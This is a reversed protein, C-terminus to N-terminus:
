NWIHYENLKCTIIFGNRKFFELANSNKAETNAIVFHTGEAAAKSFLNLLLDSTIGRGSFSPASSILSIFGIKYSSLPSIDTRYLIFASVKGEQETYLLRCGQAKAENIVWSRYMESIKKKEFHPDDTFRNSSFASGAIELVQDLIEKENTYEKVELTSHHEKDKHTISRHQSFKSSTPVRGQALSTQCFSHDSNLRLYCCDFDKCQDLISQYDMITSVKDEIWLIRGFNKGFHSSDWEEQKMYAILDNARIKMASAIVKQAYVEKLDEDKGLFLFQSDYIYRDLTGTM